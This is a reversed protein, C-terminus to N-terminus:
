LISLCQIAFRVHGLRDSVSVDDLVEKGVRLFERVRDFDDALIIAVGLRYYVLSAEEHFVVDVSNDRPFDRSRVCTL